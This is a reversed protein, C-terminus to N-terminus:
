VRFLKFFHSIDHDVYTSTINMQQKTSIHMNININKVYSVSSSRSVLLSPLISRSSYVLVNQWKIYENTTSLNQENFRKNCRWRMDRKEWPRELKNIKHTSHNSTYTHVSSLIVHWSWKCVKCKSNTAIALATEYPPRSKVTIVETMVDNIVKLHKTNACFQTLLQIHPNRTM